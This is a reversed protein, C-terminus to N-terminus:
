ARRSRTRVLQVARAAINDTHVVPVHIGRCGRTGELAGRTATPGSSLSLRRRPLRHRAGERTGGARRSEASAEVHATHSPFNALTAESDDKFTLLGGNSRPDVLPPFSLSAGEPGGRACGPVAYVSRIERPVFRSLECVTAMLNTLRSARLPLLEFQHSRDRRAYSGRLLSAGCSLSSYLVYL